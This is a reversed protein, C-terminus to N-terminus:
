WLFWGNLYYQTEPFLFRWHIQLAGFIWICVSRHFGMRRIRTRVLLLNTSLGTTARWKRTRKRISFPWGKRRMQSLWKGCGLCLHFLNHLCILEPLTMFLRSLVCILIFGRKTTPHESKKQFTCNPFRRESGLWLWGFSKLWGFIFGISGWSVM